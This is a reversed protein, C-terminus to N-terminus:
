KWIVIDDLNKRNRLHTKINESDAPYAVPLLVAPEISPPLNLVKSCKKTDFNCIWCTGLGLETAQLSMHDIAIAIDIDGHNKGDSSRVWAEDRKICGVIVVPANNFWEHHYTQYIQELLDKEQVVYFTYPQKNAASPAIRAAELIQLLKEKEVPKSLYKRSAYRQSAIHYFTNM